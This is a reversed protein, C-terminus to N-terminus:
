IDWAEFLKTVLMNEEEAVEKDARVLKMAFRLFDTREKESSENYFNAALEALRNSYQNPDVLSLRETALDLNGGLPFHKTIYSVIVKGERPDFDGDVEALMCLIEYGAVDKNVNKTNTNM